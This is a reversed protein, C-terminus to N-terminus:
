VVVDLAEGGEEVVVAHGAGHVAAEAGLYHHDRLRQVIHLLSEMIVHNKWKYHYQSSLTLIIYPHHLSSAINCLRQKMIIRSLLDTM